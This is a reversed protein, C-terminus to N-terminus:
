LEPLKTKEYVYGGFCVDNWARAQNVAMLPDDLPFKTGDPNIVFIRGKHDLIPMQLRRTNPAPEQTKSQRRRSTAIDGIAILALVFCALLFTLASYMSIMVRQMTLRGYTATSRLWGTGPWKNSSHKTNVDM